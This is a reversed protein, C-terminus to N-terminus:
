LFPMKIVKLGKGFMYFCLVVVSNRVSTNMVSSGFLNDSQKDFLIKM